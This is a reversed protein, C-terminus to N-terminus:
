TNLRPEMPKGKTSIVVTVSSGEVPASQKTIMTRIPGSNELRCTCTGSRLIVLGNFDLLSNFLQKFGTGEDEEPLSTAQKNIVANLADYDTALSKWIPSRHLSRLFGQGADAVCFSASEDTIHFGAIGFCPKEAAEFAHRIVNDGMEGLVGGVARYTKGGPRGAAFSRRFRDYYLQWQHCVLDNRCSLRYLEFRPSGFPQAPTAAPGPRLCSIAESLGPLGLASISEAITKNGQQLASRHKLSLFLPITLSVDAGRLKNLKNPSELLLRQIEPVNKAELFM